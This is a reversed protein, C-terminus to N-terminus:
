GRIKKPKPHYAAMEDAIKRKKAEDLNNRFDAYVQCTSHCGIHRKECGKCNM